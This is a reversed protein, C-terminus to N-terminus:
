SFTDSFSKLASGEDVLRTYVLFLDSLPAIEWRYRLQLTMQSLSFSDTPGEPKATRILDGPNEPVLYFQDEKAKVGVWQVSFRFQQKASLFYDASIRPSWEEAQFTTFNRDEQYLLWGDRNRYGLKVSLAFRDSPRWNGILKVFDTGGGLDEQSYGGGIAYSFPQSSDSEWIFGGFHRRALRYAGNGFSNLDDYYEPNFSARFTLKSLNEFTMRNSVFVAGGTFLGDRNRQVFGRIDFENNRAWSVNSNQRVHATRIRFNDKRALFGLDNLDVHDDLYEIGVRQSVGQRFTYELDVFGGFGTDIGDIDSMFMQSDLKWKGDESLYHADLGHTKADRRDNLTATTMVGIAKYSGGPEDELLVRAIGYDSTEASLHFPDGSREADFNYDGEFAALLGYRLPGSQGTVKVAGILDVPQRLEREHITVDSGTAPALPRGGIRRTNIMTTPAGGTGVGEGRTDARPSTVFIGQGELFFLRKEPFFTETASLNVVVEDSEVAGFDPNVTATLQFNSSPRWFFDAGTKYRVRDDVRDETVASFPYVSFQQKPNVGSVRLSQLESIFKPKTQPLAPWGYREDVYAVKRSMYLGLRRHEDVSPMAVSGWPIHIEGSWGHSTKQSAGRWAGDWESSFNKEPLLTGDELSDGLNLGFWYGYRGEGSTDLTVNISDRNLGRKDRGSLRSIITEAPQEMDIGFYLGTNDYFIRVRTAHASDALTDPSIVVFEDYATLHGWADEDLYGDISIGADEVRELVLTEEPGIEVVMHSLHSINSLHSDSFVPACLFILGVFLIKNM